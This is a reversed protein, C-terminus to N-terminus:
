NCNLNLKPRKGSLHLICAVNAKKVKTEANARRRKSLKLETYNIIEDTKISIFNDLLTGLLTLRKCV